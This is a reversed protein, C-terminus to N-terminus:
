IQVAERSSEVNACRRYLDEYADVVVEWDHREAIRRKGQEGLERRLDSDAMLEIVTEAMESLSDVVRGGVHERVCGADFTVFPTGAAMSELIVLPSAEWNSTLVMLDAEKVASVTEARSGNTMLTVSKEFLSRARCKYYCGGRIGLKGINWKGARHGRGIQTIHISEKRSHFQKMLDFLLDHSKAPTHNSVNVLWPQAELGWASRVGLTPSSWEKTDIGNPIITADPLSYARRFAGDEIGVNSLSVMTKQQGLWAALQGFYDRYVADKYASLGHAVFVCPADIDVQFLLDTSWIQACHAAVVDWKGSQVFELYARSEGGIGRVLNGSVNFRHVNVGNIIESQPVGPVAGTAVHVEHGRRALRESIQSVVEPIGSVEPFYSFATHLIRM